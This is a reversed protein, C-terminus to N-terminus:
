LIHNRCDFSITSTYQCRRLATMVDKSSCNGLKNARTLLGSDVRSGVILAAMDANCDVPPLIMQQKALRGVYPGPLSTMFSLLWAGSPSFLSKAMSLGSYLAAAVFSVSAPTPMSKKIAAGPPDNMSKVVIPLDIDINMGKRTPSILRLNYKPWKQHHISKRGWSGHVWPYM